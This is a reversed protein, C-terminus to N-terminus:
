TERPADTDHLVTGDQLNIQRSCRRAVQLDHTALLMTMSTEAQLREILDLIESGTTSDLNGTPEDALLLRPQNVLARAIAVRQQQGGSLQSPLADYRAALGVADLLERARARRDFTTKVPILPALVNDQATLAPLLHFRQFVFGITRRYGALRRSGLQSLDTGDVTITGSDASDMAGILHLLTSKGSGSAGRLAVTSGPVIDLTVDSTATLVTDGTRYQKSVAQLVVHAGISTM